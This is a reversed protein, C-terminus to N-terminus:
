QQREVFDSDSPNQLSTFNCFFCLARVCLSPSCLARKNRTSKLHLSTQHFIHSRLNPAHTLFANNTLWSTEVLSFLAFANNFRQLVVRSEQPTGSNSDIFFM